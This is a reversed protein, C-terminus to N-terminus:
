RRFALLYRRLRYLASFQM